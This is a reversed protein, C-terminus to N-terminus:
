LYYRFFLQFYASKTSTDFTDFWSILEKDTLSNLGKNYKLGIGYKSKIRVLGGLSISFDVKKIFPDIYDEQEIETYLNYGIEPGIFFGFHKNPDIVLMVPLNLVHLKADFYREMVNISTVSLAKVTYGPEISIGVKNPKYEIYTNLSFSIKSSIDGFVLDPHYFNESQFDSRNIGIQFGYNIKQANSLGPIILLFVFSLILFKIQRM